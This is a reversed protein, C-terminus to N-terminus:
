QFIRRRVNRADKGTAYKDLARDVSLACEISSLTLGMQTATIAIAPRMGVIITRGGMVSVMESTESITRAFFSDMTDLSSIDLILGKASYREIAALVSEQLAGITIDDPDAPMSVLLIDKLKLVSIGNGNNM